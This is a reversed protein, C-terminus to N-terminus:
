FKVENNMTIEALHPLRESRRGFAVQATKNNHVALDNNHCYPYAMNLTTYPTIAM